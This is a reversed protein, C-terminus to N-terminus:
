KYTYLMLDTHPYVYRIDMHTIYINITYHFPLSLSIIPNGMCLYHVGMWVNYMGVIM